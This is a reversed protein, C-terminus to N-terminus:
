IHQLWSHMMEPHSGGDAQWNISEFATERAIALRRKILSQSSEHSVLSLSLSLSFSLSLIIDPLEPFTERFM